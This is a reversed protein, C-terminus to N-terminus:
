RVYHRRMASYERVGATDMVDVTVMMTDDNNLKVIKVNEGGICPDFSAYEGNASPYLDYQYATCFAATEEQNSGCFAFKLQWNYFAFQMVNSHHKGHLKWQATYYDAVQKRSIGSFTTGFSQKIWAKIDSSCHSQQHVLFKKDRFITTLAQVKDQMSPRYKYRQKTPQQLQQQPSQNSSNSAHENYNKLKSRPIKLSPLTMQIMVNVWGNNVLSATSQTSGSSDSKSGSNVAAYFSKCTRELRACDIPRQVIFLMIIGCIETPLQLVM